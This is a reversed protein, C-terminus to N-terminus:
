TRGPTRTSSWHRPSRPSRAPWPGASTAPRRTAGTSCTGCAAEPHAAFLKEYLLDAIDGIAAGVAPLTARITATSRDSLM